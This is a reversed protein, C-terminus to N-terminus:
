LPHTDQGRYSHGNMCLTYILSFPSHVEENPTEAPPKAFCKFNLANVGLEKLADMSTEWDPIPIGEGQGIFGLCEASDASYDHIKMFVDTLNANREFSLIQRSEKVHCCEQITVVFTATKTAM